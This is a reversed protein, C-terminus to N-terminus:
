RWPRETQRETEREREIECVCVSEYETMDLQWGMSQLGGPEVTWSIRWALISSYTEMEEELPDEWCLDGADGTSAPLNKVVTGGPSGIAEVSGKFPWTRDHCLASVSIFYCRIWHLNKNIQILLFDPFIPSIPKLSAPGPSLFTWNFLTFNILTTIGSIQCKIALHLMAPPPDLQKTFGPNFPPRCLLIWTVSFKGPIKRYRLLVTGTCLM